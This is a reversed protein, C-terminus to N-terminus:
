TKSFPDQGAKRLHLNWRESASSSVAQAAPYVAVEGIKDAMEGGNGNSHESCAPFGIQSVLKLYVVELWFAHLCHLSQFSVDSTFSTCTSPLRHPYSRIWHSVACTRPEDGAAPQSILSDSRHPSIGSPTSKGRPHKRMPSGATKAISLIALKSPLDAVCDGSYKTFSKSLPMDAM